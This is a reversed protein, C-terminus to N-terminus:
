APALPALGGRGSSGYRVPTRAPARRLVASLLHPPDDAGPAVPVELAAGAFGAFTNDYVEISGRQGPGDLGLVVGDGNNILSSGSLLVHGNSTEGLDPDLAILLGPQGALAGFPPPELSQFVACPEGGLAAPLQLVGPDLNFSGLAAVHRNDTFVTDRVGHEASESPPGLARLALTDFGLDLLVEEPEVANAVFASRWILGAGRVVSRRMAPAHEVVNGFFLSDKISLGTPGAWPSVLAEGGDEARLRNRIIESHGLFIPGNNEVAVGVGGSVRTHDLVIDAGDSFPERSVGYRAWGHLTSRIVGLNAGGTVRVGPRGGSACPGAPSMDCLLGEVGTADETILEVVPTASPSDPDPCVPVGQFM